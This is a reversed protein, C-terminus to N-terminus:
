HPLYPRTSERARAILMADMWSKAMQLFIDREQDTKASKAWEVCETAYERYEKLSSMVRPGMSSKRSCLVSRPGQNRPINSRQFLPRRIRNLGYTLLREPRPSHRRTITCRAIPQIGRVAYFHSLISQITAVLSSQEVHRLTPSIQGIVDLIPTNTISNGHEFHRAVYSTLRSL